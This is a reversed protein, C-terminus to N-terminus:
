KMGHPIYNVKKFFYYGLAVAVMTCVIFLTLITTYTLYSSAVLQVVPVMIYALFVSLGKYPILETAMELGFIDILGPGIITLIGKDNFGLFFYLLFLNYKETCFLGLVKCSIDVLLVVLLTKKFGMKDGIHGWFPGGCIASITLVVSCFALYHDDNIIPMFILKMYLVMYILYLPCLFSIM